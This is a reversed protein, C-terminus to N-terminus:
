YTEDNVDSMEPSSVSSVERINLTSRRGALSKVTIREYSNRKPTVHDGQFVITADEEVSSHVDPRVADMSRFPAFCFLFFSTFSM